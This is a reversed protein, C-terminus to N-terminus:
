SEHTPPLSIQHHMCLAWERDVVRLRLLARSVGLRVSDLRLTIDHPSLSWYPSEYKNVNFLFKSVCMRLVCRKLRHNKDIGQKPTTGLSNHSIQQNCIQHDVNTNPGLCGRTHNVIFFTSFDLFNLQSM